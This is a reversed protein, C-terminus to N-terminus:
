PAREKLPRRGLAQGVAAVLDDPQFPKEIYSVAGQEAAREAIAQSALGTVLVVAVAPSRRQIAALLELGGLRPMAIDSVVVDFPRHELLRLAEEGETTSEVDYGAFALTDAMVSCVDAEDDVVLVRAGNM